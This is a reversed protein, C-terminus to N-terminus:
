EDYGKRVLTRVHDRPHRPHEDARQSLIRDVGLHGAVPQQYPRAVDAARGGPGIGPKGEAPPDVLPHGGDNPLFHVGDAGLLHVEGGEQGPLGVLRGAAPGVVAVGEKPELVAPPGVVQESGGVLLHEGQQHLVERAAVPVQRDPEVLDLVLIAVLRPRAPTQQPATLERHLIRVREVEVVLPQARAVGGVAGRVHPDELAEAQRERDDRRHGPCHAARRGLLEQKRAVGALVGVDLAGRALVRRVGLGDADAGDRRGVACGRGSRLDDVRGVGGRDLRQDVEEVRAVVQPAGVAGPRGGVRQLVDDHHEAVGVAPALREGDAHGAVALDVQLPELGLDTGGLHQREVLGVEGRVGREHLAVDSRAREAAAPGRADAVQEVRADHRAGLPDGAGVLGAAM